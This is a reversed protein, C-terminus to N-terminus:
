IAVGITLTATYGTTTSGSLTALERSTGDSFVNDSANTTSNLGKAAYVGTAYVAATTSEPFAIQTTKVIAGNIFVDVHIHTARGAYWGPYITTFTVQGNSDTTQLGRLFTQGTGNFGPQSYESYNGTADCQWVEVVANALAQCNQNTNVITLVLSLPLGPKGETIDRRYYAQNNIMGLHDPYPGETESPTVACSSSTTGSTTSSPSTPSATSDSSCAATWAVAAVAGLAELAERRTLRSQLADKQKM